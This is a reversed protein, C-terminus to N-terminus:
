ASVIPALPNRIYIFNIIFEFNAKNQSRICKEQHLNFDAGFIM